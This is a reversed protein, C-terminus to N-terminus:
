ETEQTSGPTEGPQGGETTPPLGLRDTATDNDVFGAEKAAKWTEVQTKFDARLLDEAKFRIEQGRPTLRTLAAEIKNLYKMLTDNIYDRNADQINQYTLNTGEVAAHVKYAPVGFLTAIVKDNRDQNEVFMADKPNLYNQVWTTGQDLVVPGYGRQEFQEMWRQRQKDAMETTLAKDSKLYGSPIAGTKFWNDAYNQMDLVGRLFRQGKQIPGQGYPSGAVPFRNIHEIQHLKYTKGDFRYGTKRGLRDTEISVSDGALVELRLVQSVPDSDDRRYVRWFANGYLVLSLTTLELFDSQSINPDPQRILPSPAVEVRKGDIVRWVGISLQAVDGSIIDACRYLTPIGLAESVGVSAPTYSSTQVESSGYPPITVDRTQIDPSTFGLFDGVSRWFGKKETDTM